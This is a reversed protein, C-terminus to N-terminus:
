WGVPFSADYLWDILFATFAGGTVVAWNGQIGDDTFQQFLDHRADYGGM